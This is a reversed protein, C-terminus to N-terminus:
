LTRPNTILNIVSLKLFKLPNAQLLLRTTMVGKKIMLRIAHLPSLASVGETGSTVTADASTSCVFAPGSVSVSDSEVGSGTEIGVGSGSDFGVDSGSDFGIGSASGSVAATGNVAVTLLIFGVVRGPAQDAVRKAFHFGLNNSPPTGPDTRPFWNLDWIQDLNAIEWGTDTFAMVHNNPADLFEDFSTGAGLANSQGTVLM